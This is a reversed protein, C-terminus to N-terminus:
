SIEKEILNENQYSDPILFNVFILPILPSIATILCALWLNNFAMTDDNGTPTIKLLDLIFSGQFSSLASGLNSSGAVISFIIAETGHQCLQSILLTFPLYSWVSVVHQFTEAGLIFFTDPIGLLINWRKFIIVNLLNVLALLLNTILFVNRYKWDKM